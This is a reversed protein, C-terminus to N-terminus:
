VYRRISSFQFFFDKPNKIKDSIYTKVFEEDIFGVMSAIHTNKRIGKSIYNNKGFVRNFSKKFKEPDAYKESNKMLWNKMRNDLDKVPKDFKARGQQTKYEHMLDSHAKRDDIIDFIDNESLRFGKDHTRDSIYKILEPERTVINIKNGRKKVSRTFLIQTTKQM